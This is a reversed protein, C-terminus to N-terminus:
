ETVVPGVFHNVRRSRSEVCRSSDTTLALWLYEAGILLTVDSDIEFSPLHKSGVHQARFANAPEGLQRQQKHGFALHGFQVLFVHAARAGGIHQRERDVRDLGFNHQVAHWRTAAGISRRWVWAVHRQQEAIDHQTRSNSLALRWLVCPRHVVLQRQQNNVADQMDEPVIVVFRSRAICHALALNFQQLLMM